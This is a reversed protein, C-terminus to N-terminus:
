FYEVRLAYEFSFFNLRKLFAKAVTRLEFLTSLKHVATSSSVVSESSSTFIRYPRYTYHVYPRLYLDSYRREVATDAVGIGRRNIKQTSIALHLIREHPEKQLSHQRYPNKCVDVHEHM